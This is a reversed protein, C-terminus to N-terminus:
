AEEAHIEDGDYEFKFGLKESLRDCYEDIASRDQKAMIRILKAYVLDIFGPQEHGREVANVAHLLSKTLLWFIIIERM